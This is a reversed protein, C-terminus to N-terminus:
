EEDLFQPNACHSGELGVGVGIAGWLKAGGEVVLPVGVEGAVGRGVGDFRQGIGASGEPIAM